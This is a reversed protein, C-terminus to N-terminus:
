KPVFINSLCGTKVSIEIRIALSNIAEEFYSVKDLDFQIVDCLIKFYKEIYDYIEQKSKNEFCDNLISVDDSSIDLTDTDYGIIIRAIAGVLVPECINIYDERYNSIVNKLHEIVNENSFCKIFQNEISLRKLYEEIFSIGKLDESIPNLLPYDISCPIDHAEYLPRYCKFFTGINKITDVYYANNIGPACLCLSNWEENVSKRKNELIIQGRDILERFDSKMLSEKSLGEENVVVFLTYILSQLLDQAREVPMSTSDIGNYKKAQWKLLEWIRSLFQQWEEESFQLSQM